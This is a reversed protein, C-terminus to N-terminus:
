VCGIVCRPWSRAEESFPSNQANQYFERGTAGSSREARANGEGPLAPLPDYRTRGDPRLTKKDRM